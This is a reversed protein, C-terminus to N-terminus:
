SDAGPAPKTPTVADSTARLPLPASPTATQTATPEITPTATVSVATAEPVEATTEVPQSDSASQVDTAPAANAESTASPAATNAFISTTTPLTTENQQAVDAESQAANDASETAEATAEATPVGETETPSATPLPTLTAGDGTMVELGTPSFDWTVQQGRTGFPEQEIGNFTILVAPASAATMEIQNNGEYQAEDGPEMVGAFQEVGDVSVRVFSRQLMEISVQVGGIGAISFDTTPTADDPRPTWTMTYTPTISGPPQASATQLGAEVISEEGTGSGLNLTDYIVFAIVAVSAISILVLTLNRLAGGIWAFRDAPPDLITPPKPQTDTIKRPAQLQSEEEVVRGFRRRQRTPNSQTAAYYELIREEELGLFRAYNRLMGRVQVQSEAVAFNGQEFSELIPRRIKLATVADELNTRESRPNGAFLSGSGYSGHVVM